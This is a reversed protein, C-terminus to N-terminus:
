TAIKRAERIANLSPFQKAAHPLLDIQILRPEALPWWRKGGLGVVRRPSDEARGRRGSLEDIPVQADVSALQAVLQVARIEVPHGPPHAKAEVAIAQLASRPDAHHPTGDLDHVSALYQASKEAWPMTVFSGEVPWLLMDRDGEDFVLGTEPIDQGTVDLVMASIPLFRGDRWAPAVETSFIM